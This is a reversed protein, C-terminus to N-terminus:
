SMYVYDASGGQVSILQQVHMRLIYRGVEHLKCMITCSTCTYDSVEDLKILALWRTGERGLALWRYVVRTSERGM